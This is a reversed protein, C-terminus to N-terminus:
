PTFESTTKGVRKDYQLRGDEHTHLLVIRVDHLFVDIEDWNRAKDGLVDLQGHPFLGVPRVKWFDKHGQKRWRWFVTELCMEVAQLLGPWGELRNAIEEGRKDLSARVIAAGLAFRKARPDDIRVAKNDKDVALSFDTLGKGKEGILDMAHDWMALTDSVKLTTGDTM